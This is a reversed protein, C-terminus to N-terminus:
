FCHNIPLKFKKFEVMIPNLYVNLLAAKREIRDTDVSHRLSSSLMRAVHNKPFRINCIQGNYSLHMKLISTLKFEMAIPFGPGPRLLPKDQASTM